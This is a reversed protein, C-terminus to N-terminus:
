VRAAVIGMQDVKAKRGEEGDFVEFYFPRYASHGEHLSFLLLSERICICGCSTRTRNGLTRKLKM